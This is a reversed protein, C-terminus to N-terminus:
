DYVVARNMFGPTNQADREASSRDGVPQLETHATHGHLGEPLPTPTPVRAKFTTGQLALDKFTEFPHRPM